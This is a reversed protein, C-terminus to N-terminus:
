SAMVPLQACPRALLVLRQVPDLGVRAPQDQM